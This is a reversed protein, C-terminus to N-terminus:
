NLATDLVSLVDIDEMEEETFHTGLFGFANDVVGQLFHNDEPTAGTTIDQITILCEKSNSYLEVAKDQLTM